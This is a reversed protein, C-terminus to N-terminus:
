CPWLVSTVMKLFNRAQSNMLGATHMLASVGLNGGRKQRTFYVSQHIGNKVLHIRVLVQLINRAHCVLYEGLRVEAELAKSERQIKEVKSRRLNQLLHQRQNRVSIKMTGSVAITEERASGTLKGNGVTEQDEKFAVNNGTISSEVAQSLEGM